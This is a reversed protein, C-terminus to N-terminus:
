SYEPANLLPCITLHHGGEFSILGAASFYEADVPFKTVDTVSSLSQSTPHKPM